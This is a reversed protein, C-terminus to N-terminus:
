SICYNEIDQRHNSVNITNQKAIGFISVERHCKHKVNVNVIIIIMMMIMIKKRRNM